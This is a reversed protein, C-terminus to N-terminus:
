HRYVEWRKKPFYIYRCNSKSLTDKSIYSSSNILLDKTFFFFRFKKTGWTHILNKKISIGSTRFNTKNEVSMLFYEILCSFGLVVDGRGEYYFLQHRVMDIVTMVQCQHRIEMIICYTFRLLSHMSFILFRCFLSNKLYSKCINGM